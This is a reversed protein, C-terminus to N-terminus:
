LDNLKVGISPEDLREKVIRLLELDDILEILAEYAAAPVCYFIAKNRDMIAVPMGHGGSIVKMPDAELESINAAVEAFVQHKM